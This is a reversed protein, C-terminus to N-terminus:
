FVMVSYRCQRCYAIERDREREREREREDKAYLKLDDMFLFHNLKDGSKLAYGCKVKGLIQTLHIMSRVFLLLSLSEGQSIGRKLRVNVLFERNSSLNVNWSKTSREKFKIINDAVNTFKLSKIIWSHPIM